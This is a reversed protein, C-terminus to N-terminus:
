MGREGRIYPIALAAPAGIRKRVAERSGIVLVIITFAYPLMQLFFGWYPNYYFPNALGFLVMPGQIDLILRRLAGFAYAGFAARFPDWQAFIVLGIAIWGMGATTLESFWGPSVALSITAGALGALVGGLFVYLYRLRYVNVGLTDAAAPYEGVARLHMGPRTRNIYYWSFPILFYGVYVLVSQNTFFIPGLLPIQSLLPISFNPLLSVAGAKSLGEGLVISIGAGLFTLALGSVVQDAQLTITIFAHIQSLLGAALMAVLVGLWPNGTSLTVSFASMAGVLMMGEVGLNLIGSRESFIEGITAFLLVTGSAVGAQLIIILDM